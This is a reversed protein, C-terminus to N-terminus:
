RIETDPDIEVRNTVKSAASNWREGDAQVSRGAESPTLYPPLADRMLRKGLQDVAADVPAFNVLKKMLGDIAKLFAARKATEPGDSNSVGMYALYDVPLGRRFEVDEEIAAKLAEPVIKELM